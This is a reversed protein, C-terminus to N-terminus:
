GCGNAIAEKGRAVTSNEKEGGYGRLFKGASVEIHREEVSLLSLIILGLAIVM